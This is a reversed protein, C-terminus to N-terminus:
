LELSVLGREDNYKLERLTLGLPNEDESLAEGFKYVKGDKAVVKMMTVARERSFAKSGGANVFPLFFDVSKDKRDSSAMISSFGKL